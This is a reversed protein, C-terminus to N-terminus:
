GAKQFLYKLTGDSVIRTLFFSLLHRHDRRAPLTGNRWSWKEFVVIQFNPVPKKFTLTSSLPFNPNLPLPLSKSFDDQLLPTCDEQSLPPCDISSPTKAAFYQNCTITSPPRFVDTTQLVM